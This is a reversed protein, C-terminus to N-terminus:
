KSSETIKSSVAFLETKKTNETNEFKVDAYYGKLGSKNVRSDKVFYFYDGASPLVNADELEVNVYYNNASTAASDATFTISKLGPTVAIENGPDETTFDIYENDQISTVKSGTPIGPGSVEDGILIDGTYNLLIRNNYVRLTCELAPFITGGPHLTRPPTISAIVAESTSTVSTVLPDLSSYHNDFITDTVDITTGVKLQSALPLEGGNNAAAFVFRETYNAADASSVFNAGVSSINTINSADVEYTVTKNPGFISKVRGLQTDGIYFSSADQVSYDGNTQTGLSFVYDGVQLSSNLKTFELRTTAM